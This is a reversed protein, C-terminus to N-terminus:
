SRMHKILYIGAITGTAATVCRLPLSAGRMTVRCVLNVEYRIDCGCNVMGQLHVLHELVTSCPRKTSTGHSM